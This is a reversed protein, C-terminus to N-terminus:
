LDTEMVYDNMYFGNGIPNDVTEITKFDNRVYAKIAKANQRNVNLRLHKYGAERAFAKATQLMMSGIGKGQYDTLLYCKHLKATQPAGDYHGWILYGVADTGDFVGYFHIGEDFEKDMVSQAYMMEMMYAIQEPSLIEKFTVPWVIDAVQRVLKLEDKGLLRISIDM